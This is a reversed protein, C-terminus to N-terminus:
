LNVFINNLLVSLFMFMMFFVIGDLGDFEFEVVDTIDNGMSTFFLVILTIILSLVLSLMLQFNIVFGSILLGIICIINLTNNKMEM